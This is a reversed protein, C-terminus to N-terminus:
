FCKKMSTYNVYCLILWKLTFLETTNVVSLTTYGGSRDLELLNEDACFSVLGTGMLCNSGVGRQGWYKPVM